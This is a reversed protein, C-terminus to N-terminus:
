ENGLGVIHVSSYDWLIISLYNLVRWSWAYLKAPIYVLRQPGLSLDLRQYANGYSKKM